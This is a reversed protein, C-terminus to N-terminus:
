LLKVLFELKGVQISMGESNMIEVQTGRFAVLIALLDEVQERVADEGAVPLSPQEMIGNSKVAIHAAFALM